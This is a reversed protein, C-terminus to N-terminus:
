PRSRRKDRAVVAELGKIVAPDNIPQFGFAFNGQENKFDDFWAEEDLRLMPKFLDGAKGSVETKFKPHTSRGVSDVTFTGRLWFQKPKGRTILWVRAGKAGTAPKNTVISRVGPLQDL